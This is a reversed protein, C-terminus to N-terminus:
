KRKGKIEFYEPDSFIMKQRGKIYYSQLQQNSCYMKLERQTSYLYNDTCIKAQMSWLEQTTKSLGIVLKEVKLDPNKAEYTKFLTDGSNNETEKYLGRFASKNINAHLFFALEKEWNIDNVNRIESKGEAFTAKEFIVPSSKLLKIQNNVQQELDYYYNIKTTPESKQCAELFLLFGVLILIKKMTTTFFSDGFKPFKSIILFLLKIKIKENIREHSSWWM